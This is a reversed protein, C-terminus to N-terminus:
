SLHKRLLGEIMPNAEALAAMMVNKQSGGGGISNHTKSVVLVENFLEQKTKMNFFRVPLRFTATLDSAFRADEERLSPETIEIYLVYDAQTGNMLALIEAPNAAAVSEIGRNHLETIYSTGDVSQHGLEFLTNNIINQLPKELSVDYKTGANNELMIVVQEMQRLMGGGRGYGGNGWVPAALATSACCVLLLCLLFIKKM